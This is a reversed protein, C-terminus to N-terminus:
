FPSAPSGTPASASASSARAVSWTPRRSCSSRYRASPRPGAGPWSTNRYKARPRKTDTAVCWTSTSTRAALVWAGSTSRLGRGRRTSLTESRGSRRVSKSADGRRRRGVAGVIGGAPLQGRGAVAGVGRRGARAPVPVSALRRGSRRGDPREGCRPRRPLDARGFPAACLATQSTQGLRNGSRCAAAAGSSGHRDLPERRLAQRVVDIVARTRAVPRAYPVGHFGEVVQPGSAGLGLIARGESLHDLGAATQALAAPTRSFVNLIASGIQVRTTLAALFGMLTPGDFGYAEPVWVIDIGAQELEAVQRAVVRTAGTYNVSTALRM